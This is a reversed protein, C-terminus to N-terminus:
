PLTDYYAADSEAIDGLINRSKFGCVHESFNNTQKSSSGLRHATNSIKM